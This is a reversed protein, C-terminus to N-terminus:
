EPSGKEQPDRHQGGQQRLAPTDSMIKGMEGTEEIERREMKTQMKM